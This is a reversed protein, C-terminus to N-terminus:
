WLCVRYVLICRGTAMFIGVLSVKVILGTDEPGTHNWLEATFTHPFVSGVQAIALGCVVINPFRLKCM